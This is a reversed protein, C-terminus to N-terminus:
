EEIKEYVLILIKLFVKMGIHQFTITITSLKHNPHKRFAQM